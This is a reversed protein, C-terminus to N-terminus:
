WSSPSDPPGIDIREEPAVDEVGAIKRLRVAADASCLGTIVGVAELIQETKFGSGELDKLVAALARQGSLTVVWRKQGAM